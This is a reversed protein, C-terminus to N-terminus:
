NHKLYRVAHVFMGDREIPSLSLMDEVKIPTHAAYISVAIKDIDKEVGTEARRVTGPEGHSCVHM